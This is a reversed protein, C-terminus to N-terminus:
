DQRQPTRKVNLVLYIILIAAAMTFWQFAYGKHKNIGTDPAEWDRVLGDTADNLQQIVVPQIELRSTERYRELVLNQWVKGEVTQSSLELFRQSPIVAIGEIKVPGQPTTVQPLRGREKPLAVWGRNVLVHIPSAGIKLPMIVHYGAKGRYVKNDLYIIHEPSFEGQAETKHYAYDEPKVPSAPLALAPQRALQDVSERLRQKEQARNLQWNGLFLTLAVMVLAALTPWLGPRFEFGAIIM